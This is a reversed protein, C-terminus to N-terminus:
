SLAWELVEKALEVREHEAKGDLSVIKVNECMFYKAFAENFRSQLAEYELAKHRDTVHKFDSKMYLIKADMLQLFDGVKFMLDNTYGRFAEGYVFESIHFRDFVILKENTDQKLLDGIVNKAYAYMGEPTAGVHENKNIRENYLVFEVGSNDALKKLYDIMTSKGARNAGEVILIM